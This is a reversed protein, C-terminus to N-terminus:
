RKSAEKAKVYEEAIEQRIVALLSRIRVERVTLRGKYGRFVELTSDLWGLVRRYDSETM